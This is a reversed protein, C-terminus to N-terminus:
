GTAKRQQIWAQLAAPSMVAPDGLQKDAADELEPPLHDILLELDRHDDIEEDLVRAMEENHPVNRARVAATLGKLLTQWTTMPGQTISASEAASDIFAFPVKAFPEDRAIV